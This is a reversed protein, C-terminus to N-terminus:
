LIHFWVVDVDYLFGGFGYRACDFEIVVVVEFVGDFIGFCVFDM